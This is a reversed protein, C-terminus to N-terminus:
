IPERCLPCAPAPEGYEDLPAPLKARCELCLPHKCHLTTLTPELCVPCSQEMLEFNARKLSAISSRHVPHAKRMVDDEFCGLFKNFTLEGVKDMITDLTSDEGFGRSYLWKEDKDMDEHASNMNHSINLVYGPHRRKISMNVPIGCISKIRPHISDGPALNLSAM